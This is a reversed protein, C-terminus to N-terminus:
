PAEFPAKRYTPAITACPANNSWLYRFALVPNAQPLLANTIQHHCEATGQVVDLHAERGPLWHHLRSLSLPRQQRNPFKRRAVRGRNGLMARKSLTSAEFPRELLTGIVTDHM